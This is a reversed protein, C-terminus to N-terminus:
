RTRDNTVGPSRLSGGPLQNGLMEDYITEALVHAAMRATSLAQELADASGGVELLLARPHVHQNFRSDERVQIGRSLGPYLEEFKAHLKKALELNRQWDPHPLDETGSAVVLLVRSAQEGTVVALTNGEDRHVDLLVKLQRNQQAMERATQLSNAYARSWLPYDHIRTSHIVPINFRNKLEQAIVVGVQVVGPIPGETPKYNDWAYSKGKVNEETRYTEGTHTHYIGVLPRTDRYAQAFQVRRPPPPPQTVAPEPQPVPTPESEPVPTVAVSGQSTQAPPPEQAEEELQPRRALAGSSQSRDEAGPPTPQWSAVAMVPIQGQLFSAPEQLDYSTVMALIERVAEESIRLEAQTEDLKAMPMAQRFMEKAIRDNVPIKRVLRPVTELGDTAIWSAAQRGLRMATDLLEPHSNTYVAAGALVALVGYFTLVNRIARRVVANSGFSFGFIRFRLLRWRRRLLRLM